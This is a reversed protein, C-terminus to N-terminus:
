PRELYPKVTYGDKRIVIRICGDYQTSYWLAGTMEFVDFLEENPLNYNNRDCTIVSVEPSACEYLALTNYTYAGHHNAKVIDTATLSYRRMLLNLADADADALMLVSTNEVVCMMVISSENIDRGDLASPYPLMVNVVLGGYKLLGGAYLPSLPIGRAATKEALADYLPEGDDNAYVAKVRIHTYDLLNILGNIHDSHSHTAIVADITRIKYYELFPVIDYKATDANLHGGGDIIVTEGKNTRIICCDGFGVDVFSVVTHLPPLYLTICYACLLGFGAAALMKSKKSKLSFYGCLLFMLAYCLLLESPRPSAIYFVAFKLGAVASTFANLGKLFLELPFFFVFAAAPVCASAMVVVIGGILVVSVAPIILLNAALSLLNINHFYYATIPALGIQVTLCALLLELVKACFKNKPMRIKARIPPLFILLSAAACFSMQFSVSYFTFPNVLLLVCAAVCLCNFSDTRKNLLGALSMLWFMLAARIVSVSFGTLMVYLFLVGTVAAFSVRPKTKLRKLIFMVFAYIIGVHLGSVALIHAAGVIRYDALLAADMYSSGFLMGSMLGAETRDLNARLITDCGARLMLVKEYYLPLHAAHLFSANGYVNMSCKVNESALYVKYDFGGPNSANAAINLTGTFRYVSGPAFTLDSDYVRVLIRANEVTAGDVSLCRFVASVGNAYEPYTVMQATLTVVRGNYAQLSRPENYVAAGRFYAVATLVTLVALFSFSRSKFSAFAVGALAASLVIFYAAHRLALAVAILVLM